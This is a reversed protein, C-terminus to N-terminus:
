QYSLEGTKEFEKTMDFAKLGAGDSLYFTEGIYLGRTEGGYSINGEEDRLEYLFENVFGEKGDYRFVMYNGECEFGFINKEPNIMIAKYNYIGPCYYSDKIVYKDIEKVDAPNSIDFMSLKIGKYEGSEPDVENGIGLLKNEGYFHLYSSFGTIKLEGLIKPEEPNSLDVSFLPDTERFTVFYGTDGFFRASRVSEGPALNEIKGCVNLNDDLVYLHTLEENGNWDTAVARLCGNSENMSFSDNLYGSIEGIAAPRIEGDQYSFKLIRTYDKGNEYRYSSIYINETSVYFLEAASVIAKHSLVQAPQKVDVSSIVLYESRSAYEPLYVDKVALSEGEVRPMYTSSEQTENIVPAYETFLYVMDGNKRSTRYYGEQTISGSLKPANRDSIDYTCAKTYVARNIYYVDETEENMSADSGETILVLTDGDLYIEEVSENQNPLEIESMKSLEGGDAKIICLRSGSLAYIYTGDTKVIDGEDVGVEQLNTQSYDGSASASETSNEKMAGAEEVAAAEEVAVDELADESVAGDTAAGIGLGCDRMKTQELKALALYLKEESEVHPIVEDEAEDASTEPSVAEDAAAAVAAEEVAETMGEAAAETVAEKNGSKRSYEAQCLVGFILLVAAAAAGLRYVPLRKRKQEKGQIIDEIQDPNLSEPADIKGASKRIQELMKKEDM